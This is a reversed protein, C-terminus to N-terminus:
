PSEGPCTAPQDTQIVQGSVDVTGPKPVLVLEASKWCEPFQGSKVCQGFLHTIPEKLAPWAKRLMRASVGDIGPAGSPKIRWIAAKITELEPLETHELPGQYVLEGQLPDKPV